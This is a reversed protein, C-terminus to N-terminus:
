LSDCTKIDYVDKHTIMYMKTLKVEFTAVISENLSSWVFTHSWNCTSKQYTRSNVTKMLYIENWTVDDVFYSSLINKILAISSIYNAGPTTGGCILNLKVKPM